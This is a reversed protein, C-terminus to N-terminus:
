VTIADQQIGTPIFTLNRVTCDVSLEGSRSYTCACKIGVTNTCLNGPTTAVCSYLLVCCVVCFVSISM